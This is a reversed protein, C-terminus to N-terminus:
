ARVQVAVATGKIHVAVNKKVTSQKLTVAVDRFGGHQQQLRRLAGELDAGLVKELQVTTTPIIRCSALLM